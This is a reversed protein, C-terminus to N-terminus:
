GSSNAGGADPVRCPSRRRRNTGRGSRASAVDALGGAMGIIAELDEIEREVAYPPTDTSEGIQGFSPDLARYHMAGGVLVVAPGGGTRDFAIKTGDSSEVTGAMIGRGTPYEPILRGAWGSSM